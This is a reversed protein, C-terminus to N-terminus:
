RGSAARQQELFQRRKEASESVAIRYIADLAVIVRVESAHILTGSLAAWARIESYSIPNPGWGNSSRQAGLEQFWGWLYSLETPMEPGDLDKHRRGTQRAVSELM